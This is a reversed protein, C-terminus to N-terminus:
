QKRWRWGSNTEEWVYSGSTVRGGDAVYKKLGAEIYKMQRRAASIMAMTYGADEDTVPKDTYRLLNSVPVLPYGKGPEAQTGAEVVGGTIAKCYALHPCYLTTCHIGPIPENRKGIDEWQFRMADWHADLEEQSVERENPWVGDENISLCSIYVPRASLCKSLGCALSMLQETAGNSGGTKWDGVLIGGDKLHCVIDATGNQWGPRKPYKRDKVGTLVEAEGTTWNISVAVESAIHESRLMMVDEIYRVAHGYMKYSEPTPWVRTLNLTEPNKIYEDILGHVFTGVDRELTDVRDEEYWKAQPGAWALCKLLLASKSLSPTEHSSPM